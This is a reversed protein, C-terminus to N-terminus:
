AAIRRTWMPIGRDGSRGRFPKALGAAEARMRIPTVQRSSPTLARPGDLVGELHGPTALVERL